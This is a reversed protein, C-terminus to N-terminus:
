VNILGERIALKTLETSKHINLKKMLRAKHNDVTSQALHLKQACQKVTQGEALYRMVERERMTLDALSPEDRRASVQFGGDCPTLREEIQPSFGHEGRGIRAIGSVIARFPTFRLFYGAAGVQLAEDIRSLNLEDDLFALRPRPTREVASRAYSFALRNPLQADLLVVDPRLEAVLMATEDIDTATAVVQMNEISRFLTALAECHLVHDDVILIRLHVAGPPGNGGFMKRFETM